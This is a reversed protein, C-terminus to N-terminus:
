SRNAPHRPDTPWGDPGVDPLYGRREEVKKSSDHCPKCLSQLAGLIFANWDGRHPTIHDAITAPTVLGRKLCFACLPERLLQARRRRRWRELCYWADWATRNAM